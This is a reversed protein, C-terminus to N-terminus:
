RLCELLDRLWGVIGSSPGSCSSHEGGGVMWGAGAWACLMVLLINAVKELLLSLVAGVALDSMLFQSLVLCSLRELLLALSSPARAL